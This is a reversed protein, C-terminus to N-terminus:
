SKVVRSRVLDGIGVRGFEGWIKQLWTNAYGRQIRSFPSADGGPTKERCFEVFSGGVQQIKDNVVDTLRPVHVTVSEANKLATVYRPDEALEGLGTETIANEVLFHKAGTGLKGYISLIENLSAVSNGLVHLIAFGVKGTRVDDLMGSDDLAKLTPSLMNARVDVITVIEPHLNDFVEMQDTVKAIDIIKAAKNFRKLDGEPTESDFIRTQVGSAEIFDILARCVTTKGVGGKDAGVLIFLPQSM